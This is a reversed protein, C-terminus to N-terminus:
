SSPTFKCIILCPLAALHTAFRLGCTRYGRTPSCPCRLVSNLLHILLDKNAPDGFLRKFVYDVTPYIGLPM